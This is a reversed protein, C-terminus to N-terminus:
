FPLEPPCTHDPQLHEMKVPMLIFVRATSAAATTAALAAESTAMATGVNQHVDHRYRVAVNQWRYDFYARTHKVYRRVMSIRYSDKDPRKRNDSDANKWTWIFYIM